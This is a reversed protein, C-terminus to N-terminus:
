IARVTAASGHGVTGFSGQGTRIHNRVTIKRSRYGLADLTNGPRRRIRPGPRNVAQGGLPTLLCFPHSEACHGMWASERCGPIVKATLPPSAPGRM